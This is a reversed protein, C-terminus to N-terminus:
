VGAGATNYAGVGTGAGAGAGDRAGADTSALAITLYESASRWRIKLVTKFALGRAGTGAGWGSTKELPRQSLDRFSLNGLSYQPLVWM